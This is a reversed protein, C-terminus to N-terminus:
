YPIGNTLRQFEDYGKTYYSDVSKKILGRFHNAAEQQSKELVFRSRLKRITAEGKFCPLGSDKMPLVSQIIVEAHPRSALFAKICLEEFWRYAQTSTNGGMVAIMEHTLKFPAAEFKVGGPVIDFCFGFDIHLIHGDDDYMINGNHRDKFQILYSIVSYAALSKVFNNRAKQFRISDESGHKTTFYEYLGNVAERGLMDRSISNPLVDIVGCGPATATVRYPFVYLDLGNSNFISRFIAIIQLALVDQRCDDGVKFIAGQWKEVTTSAPEEDEHGEEDNISNLDKVVKRIKFNALFPAKAHSQLPKGSKRDIDIVVGDPNSPLYVGVDVKIKAMEEDIKAKKEAKTKKIYPKLKGSISTVEEFFNFEREYFDREAQDFSSIMKEVVHDLKPKMPDPITSDEDKYSNALINWIIQHSFLQSIKATELIYREIYGSYDYRLLQVIQPVYFFTTNVNHSELSRMAYQFTVSDPSNSPLFLNISEIPSTSQWFLLYKKNSPSCGDLFYSLAEPINAVKLPDKHILSKIVSENQNFRRVLFVALAPNIIWANNIDDVSINNGSTKRPKRQLPDLWVAMNSLESSLLLLLLRKKQVLGLKGPILKDQVNLKSVTDYIENLLTVESKHKLKNGGFPWSSDYAFWVLASTFILDMLRYSVLSGFSLYIKLVDLSFKILEFRVPSALPHHSANGLGELGVLCIRLYIRLMHQSEHHTSQVQSSLMKILSMHPEFTKIAIRSEHDIQAKNSPAYEMRSYAAKVVDYSKSYLGISQEVTFEWQLAIESVVISKLSPFESFLWLWFSIGMNISSETFILFPIKVFDRVIKGADKEARNLYCASQFLFNGLESNSTHVNNNIREKLLNVMDKIVESEQFLSGSFLASNAEKRVAALENRWLYQSFFGSTTDTRVGGLQKLTALSRDGSFSVSGGMKLAFSSGLSVDDLSRYEDMKALYTQLLGKMDFNMKGLVLEVWSEASVLLKDLTKQRNDYSDSLELTIGFKKSTFIARPEYEDTEADMCSTWVMSLLELLTFLSEPKCLSSPITKILRDACIFAIEQIARVRHCCLILIEKLQLAVNVGVFSEKDGKIVNSIYERIVDNVISAMYKSSDGATKFGPDGFYLIVKSCNGTSSRLSELLVASAFFILKPYQILRFDFSTSVFTSNIIDKQNDVNRHSSGRRLVTNLELESEMKNLSSESVLPPTSRAIIQLETKYKITYQSNNAYGHVVMNFWANRFLRFIEDNNIELPAAPFEPLLEALPSLFYSIEEATASIEVHPRHHELEQVEGKSVINYLLDMLYADFLEHDPSLCRSLYIRAKSVYEITKTDSLKYARSFINVYIKLIAKFEKETVHLAIKSLGLIISGDLSSGSFNLKQCLINSALTAIQYDEYHTSITAISTIINNWVRLQDEESRYQSFPSNWSESISLTEMGAQAIHSNTAVSANLEEDRPALINVLTYITSVVLDQSLSKMSEVVCKSVIKVQESSISLNVVYLPLYRVLISGIASDKKCLVGGFKFTVLANAANNMGSEQQLLIELLEKGSAIEYRGCYACLSLIEIADAKMSFAFEIMSLSSLDLYSAGEDLSKVQQIAYIKLLELLHRAEDDLEYLAVGRFVNDVLGMSADFGPIIACASSKALSSLKASLSMAGFAYNASEFRKLINVWKSYNHRADSDDCLSSLLEEFKLFFPENIVNAIKDFAKGIYSVSFFNLHSSFASLFGEFSLVSIFSENISEINMTGSLKLLVLDLYDAVTNHIQSKMSIFRGGLNLIASTVEKTLSTWPSPHSERFIPSTAFEQNLSQTLAKSFFSVLNSANKESTVYNASQALSILVEYEQARMPFSNSDNSIDKVVDTLRNLDSSSEDNVAYQALKLLAKARISVGTRSIGFDDM